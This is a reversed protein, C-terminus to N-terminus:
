SLTVISVAALPVAQGNAAPEARVQVGFTVALVVTHRPRVGARRRGFVRTVQQRGANASGSLRTLELHDCAFTGRRGPTERTLLAGSSPIAPTLARDRDAKQRDGNPLALQAKCAYTM